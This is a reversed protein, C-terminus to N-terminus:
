KQARILHRLPFVLLILFTLGVALEVAPSLQHQVRLGLMTGLITLWQWRSRRLSELQASLRAVSAFLRNNASRNATPAWFCAAGFFAAVLVELVTLKDFM